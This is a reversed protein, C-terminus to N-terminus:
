AVVGRDADILRDATQDDPGCRSVRGSAIVDALEALADEGVLDLGTGPM